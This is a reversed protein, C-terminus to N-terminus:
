RYRNQYKSHLEAALHAFITFHYDTNLDVFDDLTEQSLAKGHLYFQRIRNALINCRDDDVALDVSRPIMRALDGEFQDFKKSKLADLLMILGDKSNYGMMIPINFYDIKSKMLEM